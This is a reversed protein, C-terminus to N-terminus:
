SGTSKYRQMGFKWFVYCPIIFLLSFIPLICYFLNSSRGLVFLLPYYQGCALPIAFTFFKLVAEGYISIPYRGLERGGDTFINMFELGELTFFCFSAYVLFLCSFTVTCGMVMLVLTIIKLASWSVGCAKMAYGLIILAPIFRGVRNLELKSCLVQFVAGRPRVMIRDFQGNSIVSPFTDFGRFFLEALSFAMLIVSSCLLVENFTFGDVSYFRAFMFYIGFLMSLAMLMQGMTMLLFSVKYQMQSKVLISFYKLYLKM